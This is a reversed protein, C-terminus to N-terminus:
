LRHSSANIEYPLCLRSAGNRSDLAAFRQENGARGASNPKGGDVEATMEAQADDGADAGVVLRGQDAAVPRSVHIATSRSTCSPRREYPRCSRRAGARAQWGSPQGPARDVKGLM